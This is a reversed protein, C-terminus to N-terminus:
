CTLTAVVRLERILLYCPEGSLSLTGLPYENTPSVSFRSVVIELMPEM